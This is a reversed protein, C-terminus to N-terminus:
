LSAALEAASEMAGEIYSIGDCDGITHTSFGAEKFTEALSTDGSAGKAVIVHDTKLSRVQGRSNTYSVKHNGIVIDNAKRILIVGLLNLEELLRMRRVLYLGQGVDSPQDMVTVTRGREALFEALELGVLESGIITINKHVPLWLKSAQRVLEPISTVGTLAGAKVILRTFTSTKRKLGPHSGSLVLARMEEGSFVFDRDSGPIGEPMSRQAGTAIIVEDPNMRRLTDLTAETNRHIEVTSQEVQRRLWKLLKENPKYAISAFPLTGGLRKGSEILSVRFGRLSLRRAVEMGAPGGGVVAVHRPSDSTILEREKEFGADPNVACKIQKSVYIQSVCCYCYICPRIDAPTGAHLKNPLDPDALMKRGMGFFDYRGSAIDKEASEPEIRGSAIVPISLSHNIAAANSVMRNPVHPINSESHLAGRNADHYASVTIADVGAKESLRATEIADTLTIGDTKGYEISDLKCWLPFDDGVAKRVREIIETLLRARNELSGGYRDDRQNLAPSLFGSIMYGHGGHIEIGDFGAEKARAAATGFQAVIQDIDDQNMVQLKPTPMAADMFAAMESKLMGEALNSVGQSPYSPVLIPRGTKMDQAASLGGHHLQAAIKAGHHHAATTMTKLGPIFKDDSIGVSRPISAGSPWAVSTVGMVILGIGGKAHREHFAIIRDGCTGDENALNIGMASVVMRNRTELTGIRGPSTLHQFNKSM